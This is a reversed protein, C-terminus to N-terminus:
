QFVVKNIINKITRFFFVRTKKKVDKRQEKNHYDSKEISKHEKAFARDNIKEQDELLVSREVSKNEDKCDGVDKSKKKALKIKNLEDESIIIKKARHFFKHRLM